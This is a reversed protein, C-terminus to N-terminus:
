LIMKQPFTNWTTPSSTRRTKGGQVMDMTMVAVMTKMTATIDGTAVGVGAEMDGAGDMMMIDEEAALLHAVTITMEDGHPLAEGTGTMGAVVM